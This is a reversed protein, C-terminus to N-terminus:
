GRKREVWRTSRTPNLLGFGVAPRSVDVEGEGESGGKAKWKGSEGEAESTDDFLWISAWPVLMLHTPSTHRPTFDRVELAWPVTNARVKLAWPVTNTRGCRWLERFMIPGPIKAVVEYPNESCLKREELWVTLCRVMMGTMKKGSTQGM